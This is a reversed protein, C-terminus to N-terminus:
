AVQGLACLLFSPLKVGSGCDASGGEFLAKPRLGGRFDEATGCSHWEKSTTAVFIIVVPCGTNKPEGRGWWGRYLKSMDIM